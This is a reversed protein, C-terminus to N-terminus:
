KEQMKRANEENEQRLKFVEKETSDEINRIAERCKQKEVSLQESILSFSNGEIM